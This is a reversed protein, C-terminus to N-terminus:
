DVKVIRTKLPLKRGAEMLAIEAIEKPVGDVEFIIRGPRVPYVYHDVSGKGGGMGVENGKFTVPKDPFIRIWIKGKDKFHRLIVRRAAEIQRSSIWRTGLSRLGFSGFVLETAKRDIGKSHGKQLKRHKVRKPYLM